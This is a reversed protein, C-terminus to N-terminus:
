TVILLRVISILSAGGQARVVCRVYYTGPLMSLSRVDITAVGQLSVLEATLDAVTRGLADVITLVVPEEPLNHVTITARDTVPNPEITLDTTGQMTNVFRPRGNSWWVNSLAVTKARTTFSSDSRLVVTPQTVVTPEITVASTAVSCTYAHGAVAVFAAEAITDGRVVDRSPQATFRVYAQTGEVYPTGREVRDTSIPVLIGPDYHVDLHSTGIALSRAGQVSQVVVPLRLTDGIRVWATDNEMGDFGVSLIGQPPEPKAIGNATIIVLTSDVAKGDPKSRVIYVRTDVAGPTSLQCRVKFRLQAASSPSDPLPDELTVRVGAHQVASRRVSYTFAKIPRVPMQITRDVEVLSDVHVDNLAIAADAPQRLGSGSFVVTTTDVPVPPKGQGGDVIREFMAVSERRGEALPAFRAKVVFSDNAPGVPMAMTVAFDDRHGTQSIQRWRSISEYHRVAEAEVESTDFTLLSGFEVSRRRTLSVGLGRIQIIVIDDPDRVLEITDRFEGAVLPRFRIRLRLVGNVPVIKDGDLQTALPDIEFPPKCTKILTFPAARRDNLRVDVWQFQGRGLISPEAFPFSRVYRELVEAHAAVASLSWVLLLTRLLAM